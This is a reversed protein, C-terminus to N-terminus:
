TDNIKYKFVTLYRGEISQSAQKGVAECGMAAYFDDAHPDSQIIIADFQGDKAYAIAHKMLAKGLGQGIADPKVFLAELEVERESLTELAYFGQIDNESEIVWYSFHDAIIKVPTVTLEQTCALMFAESYGWHAKSTLAIETLLRAETVDAKRIATTM